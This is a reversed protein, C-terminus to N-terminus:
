QPKYEAAYRCGNASADRCDYQLSFSFALSRIIGFAALLSVAGSPM